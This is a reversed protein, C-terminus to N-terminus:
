RFPLEPSIPQSAFTQPILSKSCGSKPHRNPDLVRHQTAPLNHERLSQLRPRRQRHREHPRIRQHPQRPLLTRVLNQRVILSNHLLPRDTRVPQRRRRLIRIQIRRRKRTRCRERRPRHPPIRPRPRPNHLRLRRQRLHPHHLLPQPKRSTPITIIRIHPNVQRIRVPHIVRRINCSKPLKGPSAPTEAIHAAPQIM